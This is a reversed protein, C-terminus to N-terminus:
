HCRSILVSQRRQSQTSQCNGVPPLKVREACYEYPKQVPAQTGTFTLSPITFSSGFVLLFSMRDAFIRSRTSVSVRSQMRSIPRCFAEVVSIALRAPLYRKRMGLRGMFDTNLKDSDYDTRFNAGAVEVLSISM